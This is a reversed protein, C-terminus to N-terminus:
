PKVKLKVKTVNVKYQGKELKYLIQGHWIFMEKLDGEVMGFSVNKLTNRANELNHKTRRLKEEQEDVRMEAELVMGIALIIKEQQTLKEQPELVVENTM